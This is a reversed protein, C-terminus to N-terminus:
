NTKTIIIKNEHFEFQFHLV